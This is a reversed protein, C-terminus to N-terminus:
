FFFFSNVYLYYSSHSIHILQFTKSFFASDVPIRLTGVILFAKIRRKKLGRFVKGGCNLAAFSKCCICICSSCNEKKGSGNAINEDPIKRKQVATPKEILRCCLCRVAFIRRSDVDSPLGLFPFSILVQCEIKIETKNVAIPFTQRGCKGEFFFFFLFRVPQEARWPFGKKKEKRKKKKLTERWKIHGYSQGPYNHHFAAM